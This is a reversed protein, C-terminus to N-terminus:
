TLDEFLYGNAGDVDYGDVSVIEDGVVLGARAAPGDARVSSVRNKEDALDAGPELDHTNFGLDGSIEGKVRKKAM